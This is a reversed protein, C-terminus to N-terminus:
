NAHHEGLPTCGRACLTCPPGTPYSSPGSPYANGTPYDRGAAGTADPQTVAMRELALHPRARRTAAAARTAVWVRPLCRRRFEGAAAVGAGVDAGAGAAAM